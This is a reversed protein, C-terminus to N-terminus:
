NRIFFFTETGNSINLKQRLSRPNRPRSRRPRRRRAAPRRAASGTGRRSPRRASRALHARAEGQRRRSRRSVLDLKKQRFVRQTGSDDYLTVLTRGNIVSSSSHADLGHRLLPEQTAPAPSKPQTHGSPQVPRDRDFCFGFTREARLGTPPGKAHREKSM